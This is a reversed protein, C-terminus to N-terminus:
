QITVMAQIEEYLADGIGRVQKLEDVSQFSGHARRYDLIRQALVPGIGPLTDLEQLTATNLNIKARPTADAAAPAPQALANPPADDLDRAPVDLTLGERLPMTLDLGSVDGEARVGGARQLADAVRADGSLQYTGPRNVAGLVQVQIPSLTDVASPQPTLIVLPRPEDRRLLCIVGAVVALMLAFM